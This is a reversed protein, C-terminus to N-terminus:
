TRRTGTVCIVLYRQPMASAGTNIKMTAERDMPPTIGCLGVGSGLWAIKVMALRVRVGATGVM